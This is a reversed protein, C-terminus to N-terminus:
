FSNIATLGVVPWCPWRLLSLKGAVPRFLRSIGLGGEGWLGHSFGGMVAAWQLGRCPAQAAAAGPTQMSIPNRSGTGAGANRSVARHGMQARGPFGGTLQAWGSAWHSPAPVSDGGGGGGGLEVAGSGGVGVQQRGLRPAKGTYPLGQALLLFPHDSALPCADPLSLAARVLCCGAPQGCLAWGGPRDVRLGAGSETWVSGLGRSQGRPAWGGVRDV